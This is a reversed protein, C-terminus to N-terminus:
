GSGHPVKRNSVWLLATLGTLVVERWGVSHTNVAGALRDGFVVTWLVLGIANLGVMLAYFMPHPMWKHARQVAVKPDVDTHIKWLPLTDNFWPSLVRHVPPIHYLASAVAVAGTASVRGLTLASYPM